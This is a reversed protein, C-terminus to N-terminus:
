NTINLFQLYQESIKKNKYSVIVKIMEKWGLPNGVRADIASKVSRFTVTINKDTKYLELIYNYAEEKLKMPITPNIFQLMKKTSELVQKINYNVEFAPARSLLARDIQSAKLNTIIILQGKFEFKEPVGITQEGKDLTGLITERPLSVIRKEYTDTISKLLNVVDQNLLPTDFDDLILLRKRNKYLLSYTALLGLSAGKEIVYQRGPRMGSFHLTRRTTYTKSMGPPGHIILANAKKEIIFNIYSSLNNYVAYAPEDHKQSQFLVANVKEEAPGAVYREQAWNYVKIVINRAQLILPIAFLIGYIIALFKYEPPLEKYIAIPNIEKIMRVDAAEKIKKPMKYKTSTIAKAVFDLFEKEDIGDKITMSVAPKLTADFMDFSFLKTFSSTKSSFGIMKFGKGADVMYRVQFVKGFQKTTLKDMGPIRNIKKVGKLKTNQLQLVAKM